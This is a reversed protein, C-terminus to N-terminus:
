REQGALFVVAWSGSADNMLLYALPVAIVIALLVMKVFSALLLIIIQLVSAGLVKRIGIEKNRREAMYSALGFLGLCAILIALISFTQALDAMRSEAQYIRGFEDSLFWYDFDVNPCM